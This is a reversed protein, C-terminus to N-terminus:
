EVVFCPYGIDSVPIALCLAGFYLTGPASHKMSLYVLCLSVRIVNVRPVSKHYTLNSCPRQVM